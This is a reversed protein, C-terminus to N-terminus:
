KILLHVINYLIVMTSIIIGLLGFFIMIDDIGINARSEKIFKWSIFFFLAAIIYSM